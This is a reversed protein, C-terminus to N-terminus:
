RDEGAAGGAPRREADQHIARGRDDSRRRPTDTPTPNQVGVTIRNVAFLTRAGNVDGPVVLEPAPLWSGDQELALYAPHSGFSSDLEGLALTVPGQWQSSVTVTVRLLANKASPLTPAATNVLDELSM